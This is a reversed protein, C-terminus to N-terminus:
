TNETKCPEGEQGDAAPAEITQHMGGGDQAVAALFEVATMEAARGFQRSQLVTRLFTEATDLNARARPSLREGFEDFEYGRIGLIYGDTETVFLDQALALAAGPECGHSSFGLEGKPEVRQFFMPEPGVQAADVFVVVDHAAIAAADEVTLQYDADVHVGPLDAAELREAMAPGLGDDLRGPNGYGIVLIEGRRTM